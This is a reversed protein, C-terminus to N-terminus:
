VEEPIEQDAIMVGVGFAVRRLQRNSEDLAETVAQTDLASTAIATATVDAQTLLQSLLEALTIQGLSNYYYTPM